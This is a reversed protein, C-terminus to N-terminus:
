KLGFYIRDRIKEKRTMDVKSLFSFNKVTRTTSSINLIDVHEKVFILFLYIIILKSLVICMSGRPTGAKDWKAKLLVAM